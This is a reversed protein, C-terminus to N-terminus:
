EEGQIRIIGVYGLYGPDQVIQVVKENLMSRNKFHLHGATVGIVPSDEALMLKMFELTIENPRYNCNLGWALVRDQWIQRSTEALNNDATPLFPVHTLIFVLKGKALVERFGSLTIDSIQSTSNNIGFIILEELEMTFYDPNGDLADLLGRASDHDINSYMNDYDHDARVYMYPTKIKDLGAMLCDINKQSIFDMMDGAMLVADAQYSDLTGALSLWLDSSQVGEKDAFMEYRERVEDLYEEPIDESELAIHVDNVVLFTYDRQLGPVIIIEENLTYINDQEKEKLFFLKSLIFTVVFAATIYSIVRYKKKM